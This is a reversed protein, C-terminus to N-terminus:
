QALQDYKSRDKTILVYIEYTKAPNQYIMVPEDLPIRDSGGQAPYINSEIETTGALPCDTIGKSMIALETSEPSVLARSYEICYWGYPGAMRLTNGGGPGPSFQATGSSRILNSAAVLWILGGLIVSGVIIGIIRRNM